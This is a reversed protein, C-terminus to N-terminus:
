LEDIFTVYNEQILVYSMILHVFLRSKIVTLISILIIRAYNGNEIIQFYRSLINKSLIDPKLTVDIM